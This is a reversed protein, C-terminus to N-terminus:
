RSAPANERRDSSAGREASSNKIRCSGFFMEAWSSDEEASYEILVAKKSIEPIYLTYTSIDNGFTYVYVKQPKPQEYFRGTLSNFNVNNHAVYHSFVSFSYNTTLTANVSREAEEESKGQNIYYQKQKSKFSEILGAVSKWSIKQDTVLFDVLDIYLGTSPISCLENRAHRNLATSFVKDPDMSCTAQNPKGDPAKEQVFGCEFAIGAASADCPLSMIMTFLITFLWLFSRM